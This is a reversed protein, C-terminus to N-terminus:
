VDEDAMYQRLYKTPYTTPMHNSIPKASNHHTHRPLIALLFPTFHLLRLGISITSRNTTVGRDGQATMMAVMWGRWGVMGRKRMM